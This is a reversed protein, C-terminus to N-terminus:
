EEVWEMTGLRIGELSPLLCAIYWQEDYEFVEPAAVPIHGILFRDDDLGFDFPDKSRYIYTKNNEGYMVTRFLYFDEGRQVVFPCEAYWLKGKGGIGGYSVRKSTSWQLLDPSTRAYIAGNDQPHAVYYCIWQDAYKIVMADRTNTEAPDGFLAPDGDHVQRRFQKGDQSTALCIRNWDGYLMKYIGEHKIVYPAQMGGPHEGLTTDARMAIGKAAWDKAIIDSGEWGHFLRTRGMEKTKRICSWLQWTGDSAQWIGFDVPQQKPDSLMGLDPNDAIQWWDENLKPTLPQADLVTMLSVLLYIPLTDILLLRHM